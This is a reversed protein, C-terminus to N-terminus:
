EPEDWQHAKKEDRMQHRLLISLIRDLDSKIEIHSEKLPAVADLILQRVKQEEITSKEVAQVRKDLADIREASKTYVVRILWGILAAFVGAAWTFLEDPFGETVIKM